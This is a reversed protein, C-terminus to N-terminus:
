DLRSGVDCLVCGVDDQELLIESALAIASTRRVNAFVM